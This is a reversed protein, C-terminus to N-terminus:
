RTAYLQEKFFARAGQMLLAKTGDDPAPTADDANSAAAPQPAVPPAPPAPPKALIDRKALQALAWNQQQMYPTNGGPVPAMNERQRAEDPSMWGGGVAKNWAEFRATTDMRLLGQLDFQTRYGSPLGCGEDLLVEISEMLIQLCGTYYQENLAEVNNSTPMPGANIKYLPVGFARAVDEVTWSLQEILQSQEAPITMPEYKLGDGAVLLRGINQGSIAAEATEKLRKATVEDITGPATLVGSPRSMNQFFVASNAQIRNGQTTSAACAYIPAIGVLPHFLPNMLDHIIESDPVTISDAVGSLPDVNLQYYVSGDSAVLTNVRRADLVYLAVVIGRADREKLVYTNGYILKSIIWVTLFQIRTQYRNPKRLVAWYPSTSVAAPWTNDEAAEVLLLPLKAIDSSIRNICAYVASFALLNQHTDVEVNKQWAGTFSERVIGFLGSTRVPVLSSAKTRFGFMSRVASAARTTLALSM